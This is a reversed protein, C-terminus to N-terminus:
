KKQTVMRDIYRDAIGLAGDVVKSVLWKFPEPPIPFTWRDLVKGLPHAKGQVNEALIEGVLLTQPVGHGAYGIGYHINNYKGTVGIGPMFDLPIAIWGGWFTALKLDELEPFRNRFVKEIKVAMTPRDLNRLQSGWPIYVYKGGAILTNHETLRYSELKEHATYIGERNPWNLRDRQEQSLTESEFMGAWVPSMFRRKWGLQMTFANTALVASDATVTGGATEVMVPASNHIRVVETQEYLQVGASIAMKRVNSILKGPDLIGGVPDLIGSVFSAPIGRERMEDRGLFRLNLGLGKGAAQLAMLRKNQRPHIAANINGNSVYSCEIQNDRIFGELRLVSTKAFHCLEQARSLKNTKLLSTYDKGILGDIYGSNRGSAGSGAFERELVAVSIGRQRLNLATYLGTFGGGIVVVDTRLDEILRPQLNEPGSWWNSYKQTVFKTM